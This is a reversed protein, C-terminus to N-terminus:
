GLDDDLPVLVRVLDEEFGRRVLLRAAAAGSLKQVALLRRARATDDQGAQRQGEEVARAALAPDLGRAELRAQMWRVSRDDDLFRRVLHAALRADDLYGRASLEGVVSAVEDASAGTATLRRELEARTKDSAELLRLARALLGPGSM